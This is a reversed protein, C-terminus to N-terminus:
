HQCRWWHHHNIPVWLFKKFLFKKYSSKVGFQAQASGPQWKTTEQKASESDEVVCDFSDTPLTAEGRKQNSPRKGVVGM